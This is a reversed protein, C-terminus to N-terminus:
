LITTDGVGKVLVPDRSHGPAKPVRCLLNHSFLSFASRRPDVALFKTEGEIVGAVFAFINSYTFHSAFFFFSLSSLCFFSLFLLISCM